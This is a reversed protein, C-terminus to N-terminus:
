LSSCCGGERSVSRLNHSMGSNMVVMCVWVNEGRGLDGEREEVKVDRMRLWRRRRGGKMDMACRCATDCEAVRTSRSIDARTFVPTSRRM